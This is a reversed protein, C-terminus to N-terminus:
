GSCCITLRDIGGKGSDFPQFAGPRLMPNQGDKMKRIEQLPVTRRM